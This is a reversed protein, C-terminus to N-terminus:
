VAEVEFVFCLGAQALPGTKADCALEGLFRLHEMALREM